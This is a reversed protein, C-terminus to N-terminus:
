DFILLFDIFIQNQFIKVFSKSLIERSAIGFVLYWYFLLLSVM